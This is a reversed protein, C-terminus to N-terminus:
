RFTVQNLQVRRDEGASVIGVEADWCVDFVKFGEGAVRQKDECSERRIVYLSECTQSSPSGADIRASRIDWLRCTGDLSASVLGWPKTPESAASVVGGSHGRLTLGAV